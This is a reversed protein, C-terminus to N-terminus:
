QRYGETGRLDGRGHALGHGGPDYRHHHGVRRRRRQAGARLLAAAHGDRQRGARRLSQAGDRERGPQLGAGPADSQGVAGRRGARVGARGPHAGADAGDAGHQRVPQDSSSAIVEADVGRRFYTVEEPREDILLVIIRTEPSATGIATALKSLLTTKGAKPPSVILGRTGKGIPAILDVARLSPDASSGLDFRDLPAIPVLQEFRRRAKWAAPKMGCITEVATLETGAKASQVPGAVLAGETLEHERILRAPVVPDRGTPHLSRELELLTGNGRGALKLIGSTRNGADPRVSTERLNRLETSRDRDGRVTPLNAETIGAINVRGSEVIYVGHDERLRHVQERTLGTFSFMGHQRQIFSFDRTVGAAALGRVFRRRMDQIRGRMAAVEGEWEAYL